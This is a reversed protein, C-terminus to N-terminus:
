RRSSASREGDAPLNGDLGVGLFLTAPGTPPMASFHELLTADLLVLQVSDERPIETLAGIPVLEAGAAELGPRIADLPFGAAHYIRVGRM